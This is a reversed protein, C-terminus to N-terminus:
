QVRRDYQSGELTRSSSAYFICTVQTGHGAQSKLDLTAGIVKARYHMIRIGMGALHTGPWPFGPGDDKVALSFRDGIHTLSIVVNKAKGHKAANLVAEQAIYYLHLGVGNELVPIPEDSSFRCDIEYLNSTTTALEELACALGEQALHVPFLGRAIGRTQTIAENLLGGIKEAEASDPESKKQLREALLDTLYAICALQQCVGDHLDHGIRRQERTSIELIERELRKRETIDRAIGEVEVRKGGQEVIRTNIELKHRQGGASVFDWEAASLEEVGKVLQDLWQRAAPRQEETVLDILEHSLIDKRPRQLLREGAKNISTIRGELDHTYVIDNANEFLDEYREKLAAEAELKERIIKTQKHVRVRLNGVWGFAALAILVLAGVVWILKQLNWWPPLQLLYIDGAARLLLRFSKARWAEGPKWDSGPEILCVGTVAVKSGNQLYAFDNGRGTRQLYAHFIFGGSQLVVFQERSHRARDLLTAEIRVLRCDHTGKLAEDATVRDPEPLPGSGTSRYIADQLIPTYDGKAPFGLVEVEDGPLLKGMQRTEVFLGGAKDEIYLANENPRHYIVTGLVKVRHGYTGQPSFRLLNEIRQSPIDFPDNPAPIETILDMPRPLLLRIDFLQRQLNFSTVCVGRIKVTSDVLDEGKAVPLQSAYATLRGGGTAVDILYYGGLSENRISRVIGRLEVFQSDEQGSALREFTVPTAAPFQGQGLVRIEQPVVVPAYEGPNTQGDIEVSVGPQLRPDNEAGSQYLYIGATDDQFFRFYLSQDFFTLTGRLHVPYHRAAQAPTLQRVEEATHLVNLPPQEAAGAALDPQACRLGAALLLQCL